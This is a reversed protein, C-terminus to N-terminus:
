PSQHPPTPSPPSAAPPSEPLPEGELRGGVAAPLSETKTNEIEAETEERYADPVKIHPTKLDPSGEPAKSPRSRLSSAFFLVPPTGWPTPAGAGRNEM